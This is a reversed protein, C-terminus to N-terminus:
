RPPGIRREVTGADAKAGAYSSVLYPVLYTLLIKWLPPVTGALVQDGQNIAILLTGVVLAVKLARVLNTRAFWRSWFSDRSDTMAPVIRRLSPDTWDALRPKRFRMVFRNTKGRVSPDFVLKNVDDEPNAFMDSEAELVFGAAAMDAKVTAPDIRHLKEVLARTDGAPGVHDVIAVIGGPKM